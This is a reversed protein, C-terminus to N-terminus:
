LVFSQWWLRITHWRPALEDDCHSPRLVVQFLIALHVNAQGTTLKVRLAKVLACSNGDACVLTRMQAAVFLLRWLFLTSVDARRVTVGLFLTRM